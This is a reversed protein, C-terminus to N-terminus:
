GHMEKEPQIALWDVVKVLTSMRVDKKRLEFRCLDAYAMGIQEAAVRQSLQRRLRVSRTLEPLEELNVLTM